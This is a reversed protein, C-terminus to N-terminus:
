DVNESQRSGISIFFITVYYSAMKYIVDFIIICTHIGSFMEFKELRFFMQIRINCYIYFLAFNAIIFTNLSHQEGNYIKWTKLSDTHMLQNSVKFCCFKALLMNLIIMPSKVKKYIFCLQIVYLVHSSLSTVTCSTIKRNLDHQTMKEKKWGCYCLFLSIFFFLVSM